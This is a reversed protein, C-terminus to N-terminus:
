SDRPSPSTYLLCITELSRRVEEASTGPFIRCNVNAGARQPLANTAHGGDLMTAVCTTHLIANNAPSTGALTAAAAADAPDAAFAAMAPAGERPGILKAMSGFYGRTADNVQVPFDYARIKVM